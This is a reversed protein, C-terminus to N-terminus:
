WPTYGMSVSDGIVIVNDRDIALPRPPGAKCGPERNPNPSSDCCGLGSRDAAYPTRCCRATAPCRVQCTPWCSGLGTSDNTCVVPWAGPPGPSPAPHPAPAPAPTPTWVPWRCLPLVDSEPTCHWSITLGVARSPGVVHGIAAVCTANLWLTRGDAAVTGHMQKWCAGSPKLQTAAVSRGQGPQPDTGSIVLSILQDGAVYDGGLLAPNIPPSSGASRAVLLVVGATSAMM